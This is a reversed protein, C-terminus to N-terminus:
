FYLTKKEINVNLNIKKSDVLFKIAIKTFSHM